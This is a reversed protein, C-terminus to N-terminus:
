PGANRFSLGIGAMENGTGGTSIAISLAAQAAAYFGSAGLAWDNTDVDANDDVSLGTATLSNSGRNRNVAGAIVFGNAPVSLSLNIPQATDSQVDFVVGDWNFLKYLMFGAGDAAASLNFVWNGNGTGTAKEIAHVGVTTAGSHTIHGIQTAANGDLTVSSVNGGNIPFSLAVFHRSFQGLGADAEAGLAQTTWNYSSAAGASSARGLFSGQIIPISRVGGIIPVQYGMM